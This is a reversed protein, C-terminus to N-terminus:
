NRYQFRCCHMGLSSYGSEAGFLLSSLLMSCCEVRLELVNFGFSRSVNLHVGTDLPDM